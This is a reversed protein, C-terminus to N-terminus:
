LVLLPRRLAHAGPLPKVPLNNYYFIVTTGKRVRLYPAISMSRSIRVTRSAANMSAMTPGDAVNAASGVCAQWDEDSQAGVPLAAAFEGRLAAVVVGFVVWALWDEDSDAGGSLAAAFEGRLGAVVAGYAAIRPGSNKPQGHRGNREEHRTENRHSEAPNRDWPGAPLLPPRRVRTGCPTDSGYRRM